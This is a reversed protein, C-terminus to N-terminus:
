SAVGALGSPWYRHSGLRYRQPNLLWDTAAFLYDEEDNIVTVGKLYHLGWGIRSDRPRRNWLMFRPWNLSALKDEPVLKLFERMGERQEEALAKRQAETSFEVLFDPTYTTTYYQALYLSPRYNEPLKFAPSEVQTRDRALYFRKMLDLFGAEGHELWFLRQQSKTLLEKSLWGPQRETQYVAHEPSAYARILDLARGDPIHSLGVLALELLKLDCDEAIRELVARGEDLGKMALVYAAQGAIWPPLSLLPLMRPVIRDAPLASLVDAHFYSPYEVSDAILLDICEDTFSEVHDFLWADTKGSVQSQDLGTIPHERLANYVLHLVGGLEGSTALVQAATRRYCLAQSTLYKSVLDRVGPDHALHPTLDRILSLVTLDHAYRSGALGSALEKVALGVFGEPIVVRM